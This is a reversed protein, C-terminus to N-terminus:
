REQASVSVSLLDVRTQQGYVTMASLQAHVSTQRKEDEKAENGEGRVRKERSVVVEDKSENVGDEVVVDGRDRSSDTHNQLVGCREGGGTFPPLASDLEEDRAGRKWESAIVATSEASAGPKVSIDRGPADGEGFPMFPPKAVGVRSLSAMDMVEIASM